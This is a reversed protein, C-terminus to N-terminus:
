ESGSLFLHMELVVSVVLRLLMLDDGVRWWHSPHSWPTPNQNHSSPPYTLPWVFALM